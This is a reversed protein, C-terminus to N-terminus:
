WKGGVGGGGSHGGGFGHFSSGGSNFSSRGHYLSHGSYLSSGYSSRRKRSREEEEKDVAKQYEKKAYNIIAQLKAYEDYLKLNSYTVENEFKQTMLEVEKIVSMLNKSKLKKIWFNISNKYDKLSEQMKLINEKKVKLEEEFKKIENTYNILDKIAKIVANTEVVSKAIEALEQIHKESYTVDLKVNFNELYSSLEAINLLSKKAKEIIVKNNLALKYSEQYEEININYTKVNNELSVLSKLMKKSPQQKKVEEFEAILGKTQILINKIFKTNIDKSIVEIKNLLFGIEEIKKNIDTKLKIADKYKKYIFKIIFGFLTLIIIIGLFWLADYFEKKQQEIQQAKFAEIDESNTGIKKIIANVINKIGQTYNGAKFEPIMESQVLRYAALDPLLIEAGYGTHIRWDHTNECFILLIGNDSGSKGIGWKEFIDQAVDSMMTKDDFYNLTVIAIEVGSSKEYESLKINLSDEESEPFIMQAYDNVYNTPSPIEINWEDLSLTDKIYKSIKIIDKLSYKKYEPYIKIFDQWATSYTNYFNYKKFYMEFNHSIFKIDDTENQSWIQESIILIGAILVIFFRIIKIKNM